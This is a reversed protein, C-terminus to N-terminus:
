ENLDTWEGEHFRYLKSIHRGRHTGQQIARDHLSALRGRGLSRLRAKVLVDHRLLFAECPLTCSGPANDIRGNPWTTCEPFECHLMASNSDVEPARQAIWSSVRLFTKIPSLV